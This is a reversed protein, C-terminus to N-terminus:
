SLFQKLWSSLCLLGWYFWLRCFYLLLLSNSRDLNQRDGNWRLCNIFFLRNIRFTFFNSLGKGNLLSAFNNIDDNFFIILNNRNINFIRKFLVNKIFKFLYRDIKSINRMHFSDWILMNLGDYLSIGWM